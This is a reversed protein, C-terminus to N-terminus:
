EVINLDGEHQHPEKYYHGEANRKFVNQSMALTVCNALITLIILIDFWQHTVIYIALRRLPNLPGILFLSKESISFNKL